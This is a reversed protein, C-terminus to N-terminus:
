ETKELTAIHVRKNETIFQVIYRGSSLTSADVLKDGSKFEISQRRGSMDFVKIESILEDTDIYFIGSSSPNPHISLDFESMEKLGITSVTFCATTDTCGGQEVICAFDGDYTASFNQNMEGAIASFGTNCDVWQYSTSTAATLTVGVQTVSLDLGTIIVNQTQTSTNGNGDDFTWTVITTGVTTIPLTADNTVTVVASCNDTGTPPTLSTISCIETLDSLSVSDPVPDIDDVIPITVSATDTCGNADTIVVTHPGEDVGTIGPTIDTTSWLYTYAGTGGIASSMAEGDFAGSCSVNSTAVASAILESPETLEVSGSNACPATSGSLQIDDAAFSPDAGSNNADNDWNFGIKVNPNNDASAPLIISYPSAAWQGQVGLGGCPGGCCPTQPLPNVLDSWTSGDYYALSAQDLGSEGYHMYNFSLTIGSQGSCDITPSEIRKHTEGTGGANYSAGCDGTPCLGVGVSGVHLTQNDLAPTAVCGDGCNGTGTGAETASVYWQNTQGGEAAMITQTWPGNVSIASTALQNQNACAADLGFDESWFTALGGTADTITVGYNGACLGSITATNGIPTLADDVWEYSYPTTGGSVTVTIQGNCDGYCLIPVDINFGVITPGGSVALSELGSVQAGLGDEVVILYQGSTLGTFTGSSQFTAGNDISYQYPGGDGGAGSLIILGDNSNCNEPVTSITYSVVQAMLFTGTILFCTLLLLRRM